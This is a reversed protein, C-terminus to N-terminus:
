QMNIKKCKDETSVFQFTIAALLLLVLFNALYPFLEYIFTSSTLKINRLLYETIHASQLVIYWGTLTRAYADTIVPSCRWSRPSKIVRVFIAYRVVLALSVSSLYPGIDPPVINSWRWYIMSVISCICVAAAGMVYPRSDNRFIFVMIALAAAGIPNSWDQSPMVFWLVENILSEVALVGVLTLININVPRAVLLVLLLCLYARAFIEQLQFFTFLMVTLAAILMINVQNFIRNVKM